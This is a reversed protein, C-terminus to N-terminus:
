SSNQLLTLHYTYCNGKYSFVKRFSMHMDRSMYRAFLLSLFLAQYKQLQLFIKDSAKIKNLFAKREAVIDELTLWAHKFICTDQFFM